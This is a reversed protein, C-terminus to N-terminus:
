RKAESQGLRARIEAASWGAFGERQWGNAWPGCHGQRSRAIDIPIHPYGPRRCTLSELGAHHQCFACGGVHPWREFAPCAAADATPWAPASLACGTTRVYRCHTCDYGQAAEAPAPEAAPIATHERTTAQM